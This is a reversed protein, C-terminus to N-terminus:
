NQFNSLLTENLPYNVYSEKFFYRYELNEVEYSVRSPLAHIYIFQLPYENQKPKVQGFITMYTKLPKVLGQM